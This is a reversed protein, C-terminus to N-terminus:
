AGSPPQASLSEEERGAAGTLVSLEVDGEVTVSTYRGSARVRRAYDPAADVNDAVVCAGPRLRPELLSLLPAYLPKHGDLLVLDISAPLDRALTEMADGVRIEVGDALGVEVLNARARAAKEPFLETTVLRGGGVDHLAAALHLTSLGFSTGFEVVVRARAVSALVYLLRATTRSVALYDGEVRGYLRRCDPDGLTEARAEPSLAALRRGVDARSEDAEAFLRDLVAVVSPRSLISSPSLSM